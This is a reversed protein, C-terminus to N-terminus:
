PRHPRGDRARRSERAARLHIIRTYIGTLETGNGYLFRALDPSNMRLGSSRHGARFIRHPRRPRDRGPVASGVIRRRRCGVGDEMLQMAGRGCLRFIVSQWSPVYLRGAPTSSFPLRSRNPRTDCCLSLWCSGPASTMRDVDVPWVTYAGAQRTLRYHWCPLLAPTDRSAGSNMRSLSLAHCASRSILSATRVPAHVPHPSRPM